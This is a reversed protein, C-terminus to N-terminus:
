ALGHEMAFRTAAARSSVGIKQYVSNLHRNVARPSIFLEKAVQANTLGKAVLGLVEVERASLGLPYSSTTTSSADEPSPEKEVGAMAYEVAQEPTMARGEAWAAEFAEKGLRSRAAALMGERDPHFRDSHAPPSGIAESLAEEAGRLRSARDQQGRVMAVEALGELCGAVITKSGVEAALALGEKYIAAARAGDGQRLVTEGLNLLTEALTPKNGLRRLLSQSEELLM